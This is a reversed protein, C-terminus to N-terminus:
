ATAAVRRALMRHIAGLARDVFPKKDPEVIRATGAVMSRALESMSIVAAKVGMQDVFMCKRTVNSRWSLKARQRTDSHPDTFEFWTGFAIDLLREQLAQEEKNTPAPQEKGPEPEEAAVARSDRLTMPAPQAPQRLAEQQCAFLAQLLAEKDAQQTTGLLECVAQQLAELGDRRTVRENEDLPPLSVDIVQAAVTLTHHWAESHEAQNERLLIFTLRDGILRQLFSRTAEPLVRGRILDGIERQARNRAAQLKEQGNAAEHTRKEVLEARRKLEDIAADLEALLDDFVSVDERFDRLVRDVIDELKPFIGSEPKQENVWRIGAATMENLLRRAPHRNRTFFQRDIIAVKLLPTHLRSLLAKVVNPLQQEKLMFEFLMGVLDIVDADATPIRRRDTEGLIKEREQVLTQQLTDILQNDVEINEIFESSSIAAARSQLQSQARSISGVLRAHPSSGDGPPMPAGGPSPATSRDLSTVTGAGAHTAAPAPTVAAGPTDTATEGAGPRRRGALLQCIVGFLEDGLDGSEPEVAQGGAAPTSDAMNRAEDVPEMEKAVGSVGDVSKKIEFKLNPLIDAQILRENYESFLDGTQSLVFKDFLAIVVIRVRTEMELEGVAHRFAEGLASPGAPIQEDDIPKGNNVVALRQKLAYLKEQLRGSLKAVANRIAVSEEMVDTQVLSFGELGDEAPTTQGGASPAPPFDQFSRDIEKFFRQAVAKHKRRIENMAEFFLSQAMNSEAKEAFDLLAVDANEFMRGVLPTLHSIAMEQCRDLLKAFPPTIAM